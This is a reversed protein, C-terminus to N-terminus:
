FPFLHVHLHVIEFRAPIKWPCHLLDTLEVVKYQDVRQRTERKQKYVTQRMRSPTILLSLEQHPKAGAVLDIDPILGTSNIPITPVNVPATHLFQSRGALVTFVKLKLKLVTTVSSLEKSLAARWTM